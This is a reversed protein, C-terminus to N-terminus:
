YFLAIPHLIYIKDKEKFLNLMIQNITSYFGAFDNTQPPADEASIINTIYGLISINGGYKFAIIEPADRFNKDDLPILMDETMIFRNYPITNRIVEITKATDKREPEANSITTELEKIQEKIQKVQEKVDPPLQSGKPMTAKLQRIMEDMQKKNQENSFKIAGNESFLKQFYEFDLFTPHENLLIIDGISQPSEVLLHDSTMYEFVKDFAYDHLVKEQVNKVLESTAETDSDTTQIDGKLSAGIGIAKASLDGTIDATTDLQSSVTDTIEKEKGKKTLLGKEIQALFSNISDEDYYLFRRM